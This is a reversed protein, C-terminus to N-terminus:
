PMRGGSSMNARMSMMGYTKEMMHRNEPRAEVASISKRTTVSKKKKWTVSGRCTNNVVEYGQYKRSWRPGKIRGQVGGCFMLGSWVNGFIDRLNHHHKEEVHDSSSEKVLPLGDDVVDRLEDGDESRGNGLRCREKDPLYIM